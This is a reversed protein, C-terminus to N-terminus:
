VRESRSRLTRDLGASPGYPCQGRWARRKLVITQVLGRTFRLCPLTFVSAAQHM